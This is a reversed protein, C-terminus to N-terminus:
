SIVARYCVGEGDSGAPAIPIDYAGLEIHEFRYTQEPYVPEDPGRFLLSFPRRGGSGGAGKSLDKVELLEMGVSHSEDVDVIFETDELDTFMEITLQETLAGSRQLSM